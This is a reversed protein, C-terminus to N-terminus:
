PSEVLHIQKMSFPCKQHFLYRVARRCIDIYINDGCIGTANAALFHGRVQRSLLLESATFKKINERIELAKIGLPPQM